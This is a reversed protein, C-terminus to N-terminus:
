NRISQEAIAWKWLAGTGEAKLRYELSLVDELHEGTLRWLNAGSTWVVSYRPPSDAPNATKVQSFLGLVRKGIVNGSENLEPGRRFIKSATKVWLRFEKDSRGVSPFPTNSVYLMHGNSALVSFAEWWTEKDDLVGNSIRVVRFSAQQGSDPSLQRSARLPTEEKSHISALFRFTGKGLASFASAEPVLLWVVLYFGAAKEAVRRFRPTKRM